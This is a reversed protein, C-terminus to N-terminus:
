CCTEMKSTPLTELRALAPLKQQMCIRKTAKKEPLVLKDVNVMSAKLAKHVWLVMKVQQVKFM